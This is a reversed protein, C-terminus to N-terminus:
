ALRHLRHYVLCPVPICSKYQMQHADHSTTLWLRHAHVHRRGPICSCLSLSKSNDCLAVQQTISISCPKIIQETGPSRSASQSAPQSVPQSISKNVSQSISQSVSTPRVSPRSSVCNAFSPSSWACNLERWPTDGDSRDHQCVWVVVCPLGFGDRWVRVGRM